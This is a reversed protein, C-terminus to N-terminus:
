GLGWIYIYIYIYLSTMVRRPHQAANIPLDDEVNLSLAQTKNQLTEVDKLKLMPGVRQGSVGIVFQWSVSRLVGSSSLSLGQFRNITVQM